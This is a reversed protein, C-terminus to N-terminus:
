EDKETKAPETYGFDTTFSMPISDIELVSARGVPILIKQEPHSGSIRIMMGLLTDM